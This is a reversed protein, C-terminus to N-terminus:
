RQWRSLDINGAGTRAEIQGQAGSGISGDVSRRSVEGEIDFDGADISGIGTNLEVQVDVDAPLSLDINGAGTEYRCDGEPRGEYSVNGAGTDLIARGEAGSVDVNGAGTHVVTEASLDEVRINGAGTDLDVRTGAPVTIEFDVSINSARNRTHSTKIRLGGEREDWDIRIRDLDSGRVVRKTAVVQITGGGGQQVTVNGAFSDVELSPESGADFAKEIRETEGVIDLDVQRDFDFSWDTFWAIAGAAVLALCCCLAVLVVIIIIWINRSRSEM